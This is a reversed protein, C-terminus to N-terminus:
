ARAEGRTKWPSVGIGAAILVFTVGLTVTPDPKGVLHTWFIKGGIFVLILALAYKLYAFRHVMAALAFYLARLGLVAFITGPIKVWPRLGSFGYGVAFAGAGFAVYVLLPVLMAATPAPQAPKHEIVGLVGAVIAAAMGIGGLYYLLGVSKLQVEHRLHAERIAVADDHSGPPADVLAAQPPTYPSASM